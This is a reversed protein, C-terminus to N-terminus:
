RKRRGPKIDIQWLVNQWSGCATTLRKRMQEPVSNKDPIKGTRQIMKKLHELDRDTEHNLNLVKYCYNNLNHSHYRHGANKQYNLRSNSFPRICLAPELGIQYLVNRWSGCRELLKQRGAENIEHHLPARGLKQSVSKVEDLLEAYEPELDNIKYLSEEGIEWPQIEAAQIADGWFRFYQRLGDRLEPFQNPHPVYGIEASKKRLEELLKKKQLNEKRSEAVTKGGSGAGKALGAKTLAYPWKEFRRKIYDRFINLVEKQAPSHGLKEAARRLIFLLEEDKVTRYFQQGSKSRLSFQMQTVTDTEYRERRLKEGDGLTNMVLIFFRNKMKKEDKEAMKLNATEGKLILTWFRPILLFFPSHDYM